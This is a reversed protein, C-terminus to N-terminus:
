GLLGSLELVRESWNGAKSAIQERLALNDRTQSWSRQWIALEVQLEVLEAAASLEAEAATWEIFHKSEDILSELVEHTANGGAFSRIRGLNAALGGLRVPLGDRLYRERIETWDRM